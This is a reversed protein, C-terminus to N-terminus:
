GGRGGRREEGRGRDGKGQLREEREGGRETERMRGKELRQHLNSEGRGEVFLGCPQLVITWLFCLRPNFCPLLPRGTNLPFVFLSELRMGLCFGAWGWSVLSGAQGGGQLSLQLHGSNIPKQSARRGPANGVLERTVM